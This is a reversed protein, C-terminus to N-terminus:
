KDRSIIFYSTMDDMVMMMVMMMMMLLLLRKKLPGCATSRQLNAVQWTGARIFPVLLKKFRPHCSPRLHLPSTTVELPHKNVEIMTAECDLWEWCHSNPLQHHEVWSKWQKSYDQWMPNQWKFLNIELSTCLGRWIRCSSRQHLMKWLSSFAVGRRSYLTAVVSKLSWGGFFTKASCLEVFHDWIDSRQVHEVSIWGPHCLKLWKHHQRWANPAEQRIHPTSRPRHPVVAYGMSRTGSGDWVGKEFFCCKM